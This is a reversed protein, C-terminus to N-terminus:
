LAAEQRISWRKPFICRATLPTMFGSPPRSVRRHNELSRWGAATRASLWILLRTPSATTSSDARRRIMCIGSRSRPGRVKVLIAPWRWNIVRGPWLACPTLIAKRCGSGTARLNPWICAGTKIALRWFVTPTSPWPRRTWTPRCIIPLASTKSTPITMFTSTAPRASSPWVPHRRRGPWVARRTSQCVTFPTWKTPM